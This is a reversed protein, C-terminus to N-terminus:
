LKNKITNTVRLAGLCFLNFWETPWRYEDKKFSNEIIAIEEETLDYLKYVLQDIQKELETVDANMNDKLKKHIKEVLKILPIQERPTVNKIPLSKMHNPYFHTGDYFLENVYFKILKSNLIGQVFFYNFNMSTKIRDNTINKVVTQNQVSSFLHWLVLVVVSDNCYYKEDDYIFRLKGIDSLTRLGVLKPNEFLEPFMANYMVSPQYDLYSSTKIQWYGMDKGEFYKKYKRDPNSSFIFSEKKLGLKESSPRLGYNVSCIEEIRISNKEIKKLIAIKKNTLNIRFNNEDTSNFIEQNLYSFELKSFKDSDKQSEINIIKISNNRRSIKQLHFICTRVTAAEFVDYNFNIIQNISYKLIEKRLLLGYGQSLFKNSTIYILQGNQKLLDIGKEYFLVYLDYKQHATRFKTINDKTTKDIKEINVYPPNGIVIDFGDTVGFMWETDFWGSSQNQDYPDFAVIQKAVKTEWGDSELMKAIELRLKKDQKQLGIKEKRTNATFYKHRLEKLENEKVEIDPNRLLTQQPKDLGILTNAAVFKTELNPLSRIGFNEKDKQVKQDIVLSIFFRLKAIQVAIPQIDIGYICNEILYLKR